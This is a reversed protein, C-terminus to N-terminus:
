DHDWDGDSDTRPQVILYSPSSIAYPSGAAQKVSTLTVTFVYLKGTAKSIAYLHNNNDWFMTNIPDTTLLGSHHTAPAAGNFHYIELGSSGGAALLKGSPSMKIDYLYASASSPMNAYTSMTTLNGSADATYTAIQPNPSTYPDNFNTDTMVVALHNWPDAATLSRCYFDNPDKTKPTAVNMGGTDMMGGPERVYGTFTDLPFGEYSLCQSGYAYKNDGMFSMPYDWLFRDASAGLYILKGNSKDVTFSQWQLNDCLGGHTEAHYLSSGTHDFVLYGPYDCPLNTDYHEVNTSYTWKLSGNPQIHFAAVYVGALNSGFLYKGNVAMYSVNAIFPSGPIVTLKGDVNAAFAAVKNSGSTSTYSVYVFAVPQPGLPTEAAAPQIFASPLLTAAGFFSLALTTKFGCSVLSRCLPLFM